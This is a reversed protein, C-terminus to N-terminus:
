ITSPTPTIMQMQLLSILDLSRPLTRVQHFDQTVFFRSDLHAKALWFLNSVFDLSTEVHIIFKNLEKTYTENPESERPAVTFGFALDPRGAAAISAGTLRQTGFAPKEVYNQEINQLKVIHDNMRTAHAVGDLSISVSNFWIQNGNLFGKNAQM